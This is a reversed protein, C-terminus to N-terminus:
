EKPIRLKQGPYILNPNKIQDKNAEYIKKWKRPNNYIEKKGAIRWLCEAPKTKKVTYILKINEETLNEQQIEQESKKLEEEQQKKLAEERKRQEELALNRRYVSSSQEVLDNLVGSIKIVEESNKISSEYNESEYDNKANNLAENGALLMEDIKSRNQGLVNRNKNVNEKAKEFSTNAENLKEESYNKLSIAYVEDIDSKLTELNSYANKLQNNDILQKTEDIKQQILASKEPEYKEAKYEKAQNFKEELSRLEDFYEDKYTLSTEYAITASKLAKKLKDQISGYVILNAELKTVLQKKEENSAYTNNEIKDKEEQTLKNEELQSILQNAEEFFSKSTEYDEKALMEANAEEAQKIKDEYEKKLNEVASPFWEQYALRSLSYSINAKEKALDYEEEPLKEHALKLEEISKDLLEKAKGEPNNKQVEEISKRAKVLDETPVPKSCNFTFFAVSILTYFFGIQILKTKM